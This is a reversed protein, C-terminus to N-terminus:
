DVPHIHWHVTQGDPLEVRLEFGKVLLLHFAM